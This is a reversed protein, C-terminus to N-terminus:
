RLVESVQKFNNDIIGQLRDIEERGRGIEAHLAEIIAKNDAIKAVTEARYAIYEDIITEYRSKTLNM